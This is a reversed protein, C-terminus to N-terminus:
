LFAIVLGVLFLVVLAGGVLFIPVVPLVGVVLLVVFVAVVISALPAFSTM